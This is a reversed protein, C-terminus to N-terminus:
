KGLIIQSQNGNTCSTAFYSIGFSEAVPSATWSYPAVIQQVPPTSIPWYPVVCPYDTWVGGSYKSVTLVPSCNTPPSVSNTCWTVTLTDGSQCLNPSSTWTGNTIGWGHVIHNTCDIAVSAAAFGNTNPVRLQAYATIVVM